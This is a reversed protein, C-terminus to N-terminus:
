INHNVQGKKEKEQEERIEACERELKSFFDERNDDLTIAGEENKDIKQPKM